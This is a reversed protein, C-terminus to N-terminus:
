WEESQTKLLANFTYEGLLEVVKARTRQESCKLIYVGCGIKRAAM